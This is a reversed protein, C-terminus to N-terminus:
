LEALVREVDALHEVPPKSATFDALNIYGLDRVKRGLTYRAHDNTTARIAAKLREMRMETMTMTRRNRVYAGKHRTAQRDMMEAVDPIM